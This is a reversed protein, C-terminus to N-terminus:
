LGRGAMPEKPKRLHTMATSKQIKNIAFDKVDLILGRTLKMGALRAMLGSGYVNGIKTGYSGRTSGNGGAMAEGHAAQKIKMSTELLIDPMIRSAKCEEQVVKHADKMGAEELSAQTRDKGSKCFIKTIRDWKSLKAGQTGEKGLLTDTAKELNNDKNRSVSIPASVFTDGAADRMGDTINQESRQGILGAIAGTDSNLGVYKGDKGVLSNLHQINDNTLSKNKAGDGRGHVPAATRLSTFGRETDHVGDILYSVDQVYTNATGPLWRLQTPTVHKGDAIKDQYSDTLAAKIQNVPKKSKRLSAYWSQQKMTAGFYKERMACPTTPIAAIVQNIKKSGDPALNSTITVISPNNDREFNCADRAGSLMKAIDKEQRCKALDVEGIKLGSQKLMLSLEYDMEQISSSREKATTASELKAKYGNFIKLTAAQAKKRAEEDGGKTASNAIEILKLAGRTRAAAAIVWSEPTDEPKLKAQEPTQNRADRIIVDSRQDSQAGIHALEETRTQRAIGRRLDMNEEAIDMFKTLSKIHDQLAGSAPPTYSVKDVLTQSPIPGNKYEDLIKSMAANASQVSQVSVISTDLTVIPKPAITPKPAVPPRYGSEKAFIKVLEPTLRPNTAIETHITKIDQGPTTKLADLVKSAEVTRGDKLHYIYESIKSRIEQPLAPPQPLSPSPKSAEPPALNPSPKSAEPPPSLFIPSIGLPGSIKPPKAFGIAARIRDFLTRAPQKKPLTSSISSRTQEANEQENSM